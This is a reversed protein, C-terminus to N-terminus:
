LGLRRRVEPWPTVRGADADAIARDLDARTKPNALIEAWHQDGASTFGPANQSVRCPDKTPDPRRGKTM